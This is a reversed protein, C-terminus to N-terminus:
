SLSSEPAAGQYGAPRESRRLRPLFSVLFALAIAMDAVNFVAPVTGVQLFDTVYGHYVREAINGFAGGVALGIVLWMRPAPPNTIVALFLLGGGLVALSAPLYFGGDVFTMSLGPNHVHFLTLHPLPHQREFLLMSGSVAAKSGFDVLAVVTALTLAKLWGSRGTTLAWSGRISRPLRRNWDAVAGAARPRARSLWASWALRPASRLAISVARRGSPSGAERACRVEDSWEAFQEERASQPLLRCAAWLLRLRWDRIPAGSM